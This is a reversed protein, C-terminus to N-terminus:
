LCMERVRRCVVFIHKNRAEVGILGKWTEKNNWLIIYKQRM